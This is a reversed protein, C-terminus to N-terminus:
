GKGPEDAGQGCFFEFGKEGGKNSCESWQGKIAVHHNTMGEEQGM